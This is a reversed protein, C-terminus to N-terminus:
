LFKGRAAVAGHMPAADVNAVVRDAELPIAEARTRLGCASAGSRAMRHLRQRHCRSSITMFILTFSLPLVLQDAAGSFVSKLALVGQSGM